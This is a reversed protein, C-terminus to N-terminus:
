HDHDGQDEDSALELLSVPDASFESNAMDDATYFGRVGPYGILRWGVTDRNGGYLPDSFMGEITHNRLMMFFEDGTPAEFGEIENAELAEIVADQEAESLSAFPEGYEAETYAALSELGRLYLQQPDLVSQYGYRSALDDGVGVTQYLDRRTSSEVATQDESVELYPGQTYTKRTYGQNVGSLARDIYDVVGAERAGPDDPTGPLIRATLAEVTEAEVPNFFQVPASPALSRDSSAEEPTAEQAAAPAAMSAAM